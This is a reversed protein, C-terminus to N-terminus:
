NHPLVLLGMDLAWVETRLPNEPCFSSGECQTLNSYYRPVYYRGGRRLASRLKM